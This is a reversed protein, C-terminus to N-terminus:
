FFDHMGDCFPKDLSEGCKCLKYEDFTEIENGGQSILKKVGAVIYPGNKVVKIKKMTM